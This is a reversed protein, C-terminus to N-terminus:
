FNKVINNIQKNDKIKFIKFHTSHYGIKKDSALEPSSELAEVSFTCSYLSQIHRVLYFKWIKSTHNINYGSQLKLAM